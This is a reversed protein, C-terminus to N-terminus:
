KLDLVLSIGFEVQDLILDSVKAIRKGFRMKDVATMHAVCIVSDRPLYGDEKPIYVNGPIDSYALSSTIGIVVITNFNSRNINNAQIVLYRGFLQAFNFLSGERPLFKTAGL